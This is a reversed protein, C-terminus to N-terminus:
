ADMGWHIHDCHDARAFMGPDAPDPDWCYILETSRSPGAVAALERVLDACRGHRTGRCIEGDVAGIDMARGAEHNTGPYHDARLSTVVITHRKGIWVITSLLRPDMGGARLDARQGPTLIIRPNALLEHVTTREAPSSSSPATAAGRYVDAQALVDAVYWDAHNYAFIARRYDAPAGSAKLYRAAAPIADAPDYPSKRGDNNGDVGYADWTSRAGIISFQMPGACCGYNNVGSRVGPAALRGHNTEIHGIAALIWPDIRYRAGARQYLELYHHPIDALATRSPEYGSQPTQLGFLAGLVGVLVVLWAAGVLLLALVVARARRSRRSRRVVGIAIAAAAPAPM